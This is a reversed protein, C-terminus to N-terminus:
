VRKFIGIISVAAGMVIFIIGIFDTTNDGKIVYEEVKDPNYFENIEENISYKPSGSGTNSKNTITREGANYRVIPYYTYDLDGNDDTSTSEEFDVVTGITEQTCRQIKNRGTKFIVIGIALFIIWFIIIWFKKM